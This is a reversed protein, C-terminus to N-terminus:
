EGRFGLKQCDFVCKDIKQLAQKAPNTNYSYILKGFVDNSVELEFIGNGNDIGITSNNYLQLVEKIEQETKITVGKNLTHSKGYM